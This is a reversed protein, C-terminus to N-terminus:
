ETSRTSIWPRGGPKRYGGATRSRTRRSHEMAEVQQRRMEDYEAQSPLMDVQNMYAGAIQYVECDRLDVRAGRYKPKWREVMKSGRREPVKHMNRMHARYDPCARRNLEWAQAEIPEGDDDHGVTLRRRMLDALHDQFHDTDLMWLPVKVGEDAHGTTRWYYAGARRSSAGKIARVFALRDMAYSYVQMTRSVGQETTTGGSDILLMAAKMSPWKGGEVEWPNGFAMRDLDDFSELRGHWVRASRLGSGWARVVMWFHDIQTDVTAILCHAWDPVLGEDRSAYEVRSDIDVVSVDAVRKEFPMGLRETVFTFLKEISDAADIWDAAIAHMSDWTCYIAWVEAGIKTRAPWVEVAEADEIDGDAVGNEDTTGWIGRPIIAKRQTETIRQECNQCEYWARSSKERVHAAYERRELREGKPLHVWKLCGPLLAIRKGCHPCKVLYSLRVDSDEVLVSIAGDEYTPTSVNIQKAREGFTRTRTETRYVPHGENGSRGWSGMKDVEDNIVRMIPDSSTATASGGWMLHLIFGNGLSILESQTDASRDTMLSRLTGTQRFFPLVYRAVIKRGKAKDPLTLGHSAPRTAAWYGLLWRCMASVGIQGAKRINLQWVGPADAINMLGRLYPAHRHRLRGHLPAEPPLVVHEEAWQAPTLRAPPSFARLVKPTIVPQATM